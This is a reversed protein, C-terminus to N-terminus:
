HDVSDIAKSYYMFCLYIITFKYICNDRELNYEKGSESIWLLNAIYIHERTGRRKRFGTLVDPLERNMVNEMRKQVIKFLIKSSTIYTHSDHEWM